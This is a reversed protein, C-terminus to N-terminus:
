ADHNLVEKKKREAEKKKETKPPVARAEPTGKKVPTERILLRRENMRESRLCTSVDALMEEANGYRLSTDAVRHM